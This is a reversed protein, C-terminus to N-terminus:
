PIYQKYWSPRNNASSVAPARLCIATIWRLGDLCTINACFEFFNACVNLSTLVFLQAPVCEGNTIMHITTVIITFTDLIRWTITVITSVRDSGSNFGLPFVGGLLLLSATQISNHWTSPHTSLSLSSSPHWSFLRKSLAQYGAKDLPTSLWSISTSLSSSPHRPLM